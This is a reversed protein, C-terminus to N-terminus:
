QRGVAGVIWVLQQFHPVIALWAEGRSVLVLIHDMWLRVLLAHPSPNILVPLILRVTHNAARGSVVGRVSAFFSPPICEKDKVQRSRRCSFLQCSCKKQIEHNGMVLENTSLWPLDIASAFDIASALLFRCLRVHGQLERCKVSSM